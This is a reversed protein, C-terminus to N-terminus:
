GTRKYLKLRALETFIDNFDPHRELTAFPGEINSSVYTHISLEGDLIGKRIEQKSFPGFYENEVKFYWDQIHEHAAVHFPLGNNSESSTPPEVDKKFINLTQKPTDTPSETTEGILKPEVRGKRVDDTKYLVTNAINSLSIAETQEIKNDNKSM